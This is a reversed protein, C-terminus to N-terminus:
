SDGKKMLNGVIRKLWSPRDSANLMHGWTEFWVVARALSKNRKRLLALEEGMAKCSGRLSANDKEAEYARHFADNAADVQDKLSSVTEGYSDNEKSRVELGLLEALLDAMEPADALVYHDDSERVYEFGKKLCKAQWDPQAPMADIALNWFRWCKAIMPLRYTDGMRYQELTEVPVDHADAYAQEFKERRSM